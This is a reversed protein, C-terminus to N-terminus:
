AALQPCNERSRHVRDVYQVGAFVAPLLEAGKLRRITAEAVRLIKWILV